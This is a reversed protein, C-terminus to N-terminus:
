YTGCNCRQKDIIFNDSPRIHTGKDVVIGELPDAMRLSDQDHLRIRPTNRTPVMSRAM